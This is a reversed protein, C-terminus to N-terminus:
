ASLCAAGARRVQSRGAQKGAYMAEDARRLLQVPDCGDDPAIACGITAGVRCVQGAAEFPEAFAQMLKTGLGDAHSTGRLGPTVVVFEDGGLRALLDSGRLLGRLRRVVEVLLADGVDHGHQDNIPKFGDLDLLFVAVRIEQGDGAPAPTADLLTRMAQMLGRRNLAGTLADTSALWAMRDREQRALEAHRRIEEARMGLVMMWMAMEATSGFQLAHQTWFTVPAQGRLLMSMVATGSAYAMWGIFILLAARDGRRARVWAVPVGVLMPVQALVTTALGVIPYSVAETAFLAALLACAGASGRLLWSAWRALAGVQLVRDIFLMAGILGLLVTLPSAKNAMWVSEGWLHQGALGFQNFQFLSIGFVNLAYHLYAPERVTAAQVLSYILLGAAIGALVGQVAQMRADDAHYAPERVLTMPLALTSSSRVRLLLEHHVGPELALPFAHTRTALPRLSPPLHDGGQMTRALRGDAIVHLEIRDLAPYDIDLLWRDPASQAAQALRVGFRLWVAGERVGLNAHPGTPPAFRGPSALVEEVDAAGSPDSWVSVAPWVEIRSAGGGLVLDGARAGAMGAVLALLVALRGLLWALGALPPRVPM